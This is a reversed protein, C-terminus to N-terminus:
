RSFAKGYIRFSVAKWEDKRKCMLTEMRLQDDTIGLTPSSYPLSYIVMVSNTAVYATPLNKDPDPWRHLTVEDLRRLDRYIHHKRPGGGWLTEWWSAEETRFRASEPLNLFAKEYEGNKLTQVLESMRQQVQERDPSPLDVDAGRVPSRLAIDTLKWGDRTNRMELWQNFTSGRANSAPVSLEVTDLLWTSLERNRVAKDAELTYGTYFSLWTARRIKLFLQRRKEPPMFPSFQETATDVDDNSMAEAFTRITESAQQRSKRAQDAQKPPLGACGVLMLCGLLPYLVKKM